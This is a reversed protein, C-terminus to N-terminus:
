RKLMELRSKAWNWERPALPVDPPKSYNVALDYGAQDYVSTFARQLDLRVDADGALLPVLVIPLPEDLAIPWVDTL